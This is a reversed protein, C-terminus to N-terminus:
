LEYGGYTTEIQVNEIVGDLFQVRVYQTGNGDYYYWEYQDLCEDSEYIEYYHYSPEGFYLELEDITSELTLGRGFEFAPVPVTKDYANPNEVLVSVVRAKGMPIDEDTYNDVYLQVIGITEGDDLTVYEECNRPFLVSEDYGELTLGTDLIEEFSMPLTCIMGNYTFTEFGEPLPTDSDGYIEGSDVVGRDPWSEEYDAYSDEIVGLSHFISFIIGINFLIIFGTVILIAKKANKSGQVTAHRQAASQNQQHINVTKHEHTDGYSSDYTRPCVGGRHAQNYEEATEYIPRGFDDLKAM